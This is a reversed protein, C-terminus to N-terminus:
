IKTHQSPNLGPFNIGTRQSNIKNLGPISAQSDLNFRYNIRQGVEEGVALAIGDPEPPTYLISSTVNIQPRNTVPDFFVPSYVKEGDADVVFEKLALALLNDGSISDQLASFWFEQESHSINFLQEQHQINAVIKTQLGSRQLSTISILTIATLIVLSIALASGSQKKPMM